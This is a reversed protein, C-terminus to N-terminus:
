DECVLGADFVLTASEEPDLDGVNVGQAPDRDVPAGGNIRTTGHVYALRDPLADTVVVGDLDCNGTNTVRVTYTVVPEERTVFCRGATKVVTLGPEMVRLEAQNSVASATEEGGCATTFEYAARATNWILAPAGELLTAEITVM